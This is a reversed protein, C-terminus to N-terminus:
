EGEWEYQTKGSGGLYARMAGVADKSRMTREFCRQELPLSEDLPLRSGQQIAQKAAAMAIPARSAIDAAFAQAEQRFCDPPYLRHVLGLELAESPTLLKAHLILDLARATGLLRAYRQTGGAGPIIGISTEPLGVRYRGDALLRFDCALSLEFGGGATSGNIATITIASMRELRLCLQHMQSLEPESAEWSDATTGADINQEATASLEGMEYHAIFVSEGAGTFVLARVSTDAEVDDLLQFTERVGGATLTHHPPNSLTCTVVHGDRAVDLYRYSM